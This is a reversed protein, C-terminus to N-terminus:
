FASSENSTGMAFEDMNAKGIMLGGASEM